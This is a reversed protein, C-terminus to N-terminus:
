RKLCQTLAIRCKRCQSSSYKRGTWAFTAHMRNIARIRDENLQDRFMSLRRLEAYLKEPLYPMGFNGDKVLNAIIKPDKTDDKLQSNDEPEKTQKGDNPIYAPAERKEIFDRAHDRITDMGKENIYDIDRQKLHFSSRFKSHELHDFLQTFWEEKTM